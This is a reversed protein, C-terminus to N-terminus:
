RVLFVYLAGQWYVAKCKHGSFDMRMDAITTRAAEGQRHFTREEWRGTSSSYVDLTQLSPPWESFEDLLVREEGSSSSTGSGPPPLCCSCASCAKSVGRSAALSRPDLRVFVEALVDEPLAALAAAAM